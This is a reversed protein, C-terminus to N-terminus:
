QVLSYKLKERSVVYINESLYNRHLYFQFRNKKDMILIYQISRNITIARNGNGHSVYAGM